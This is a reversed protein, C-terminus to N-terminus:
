SPRILGRETLYAIQRKQEDNQEPSLSYHPRNIPRADGTEITHDLPREPPPKMPLDNQLQDLLRKGLVRDLEAHGTTKQVPDLREPSDPEARVVYLCAQAGKRILRELGRLNIEQFETPTNELIQLRCTNEAGSLHHTVGDKQIRVGLTDYDPVLHYQRWFDEGLILDHDMDLVVCSTTTSFAGHSWELQAAGLIDVTKGGELRVRGSSQQLELGLLNVIRSAIFCNTAGSDAFVELRHEGIGLDFRMWKNFGPTRGVRSLRMGNWTDEPSPAVDCANNSAPPYGEPTGESEM